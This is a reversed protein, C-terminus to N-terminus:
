AGDRASGTVHVMNTIGSKGPYENALTRKFGQQEVYRKARTLVLTSQEARCTLTLHVTHAVACASSLLTECVANQELDLWIVHNRHAPMRKVIHFIDGCAARVGTAHRMADCVARDHNVPVLRERPVGADLFALTAEGAHADLYVLKGRATRLYTAAVWFRMFDKPDTTYSSAKTLAERPTKVLGVGEKRRHLLLRRRKNEKREAEVFLRIERLVRSPLPGASRLTRTPRLGQRRVAHKM